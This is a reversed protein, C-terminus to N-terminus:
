PPTPPRNSRSKASVKPAPLSSPWSRASTEGEFRLQLPDPGFRHLAEGGLNASPAALAPMAAAQISILGLLAMRGGNRRLTRQTECLRAVKRKLAHNFALRLRSAQDYLTDFVM